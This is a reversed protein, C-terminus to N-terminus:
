PAQDWVDAVLARIIITFIRQVNAGDDYQIYGPEANAPNGAFGFIDLSTVTAGLTLDGMFRGFMVDVANGIMPDIADAPERQVTTFLRSVIGVSASTVALGSYRAVATVPGLWVAASLGTSVPATKPEHGNVRDFLGSELYHSQVANLIAEIGIAM